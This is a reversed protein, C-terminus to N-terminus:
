RLVLLRLLMWWPRTGSNQTEVSKYPRWSRKMMDAFDACTIETVDSMGKIGGLFISSFIIGSAGGMSNLMAMGTQRFLQNITSFSTGDLARQVALFGTEM